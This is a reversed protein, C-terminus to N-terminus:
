SWGWKACQRRAFPTGTKWHRLRVTKWKRCILRRAEPVRRPRPGWAIGMAAELAARKSRFRGTKRVTRGNCEVVGRWATCPGGKRGPRSARQACRAVVRCGLFRSPHRTGAYPGSLYRFPRKGKGGCDQLLDSIVDSARPVSLSRAWDEVRGSRERMSAGLRKFSADMWGTSYGCHHLLSMIFDVQKRTAM